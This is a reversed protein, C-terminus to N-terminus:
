DCIAELMKRYAQVETVFTDLLCDLDKTELKLREFASEDLGYQLGDGGLGFGATMTLFDAVHVADVVSPKDGAPQHHTAVSEVFVQPLGWNQALYGGVDQHDFGLLKREAEYFPVQERQAYRFALDIKNELWVSLVCKGIDHLLGATFATEGCIGKTQNAVLQSGVAVSISHDWLDGPELRYGKLPQSLWTYTGAVVALNRVCRMGLVVVAQQLDVVDGSMGYYPSNALRLVRASLSVDRALHAAVNTASGTPSESERMVAIAADPLSPLDKTKEVLTEITLAGTVM